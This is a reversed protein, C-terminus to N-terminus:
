IKTLLQFKHKGKCMQLTTGASQCTIVRQRESAQCKDNTGDVCTRNQTQNGDGCRKADSGTPQCQGNNKWPGFKKLCDPKNCSVNQYMDSYSCRDFTGDVCSRNQRQLGPGCSADPGTAVCSEVNATMNSWNGLQKPCDKLRCSISRDTIELSCKYNPGDQCRRTQRQRGPGCSKDSGVAICTGLNVWEGVTKGCDSQIPLICSINRNLDHTTCKDRTGDVCNRTQRQVGSGCM